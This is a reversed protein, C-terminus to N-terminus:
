KTTFQKRLEALEDWLKDPVLERAGDLMAKAAAEQEPVQQSPIKYAQGAATVHLTSSSGGVRVQKPEQWVTAYLKKVRTLEFYADLQAPSLAIPMVWTPIGQMGSYGPTYHVEGKGNAAVRVEYSYHHPPPLSGASWAYTLAFDAPRTKPGTDKM